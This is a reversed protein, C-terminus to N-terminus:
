REPPPIRRVERIRGQFRPGCSSAGIRNEGVTVQKGSALHFEGQHRLVEQDDVRIALSSLTQRRDAGPFLREFDIRAVPYLSGLHVEVRYTQGPVIRIPASLVSPLGWHDWGFVVVEPELYRAFVVDGAGAMGTVVLPSGTGAEARQFELQLELSGCPPLAGGLLTRVQAALDEMAEYVRPNGKRLSNDYGTFSICINFLAGYGLLAAGGLGIWRSRWRSRLEFWVLLAAMLLVGAFYLEYRMTPGQVGSVVATLTLGLGALGAIAWFLEPSRKRLGGWLLPLLFLLNLFPISPLMGAVPELYYYREFNWHAKPELKWFPFDGSLQPPELFFYYLGIPIRAARFSQYKRMNQFGCLCYGYGFEAPSEFRLYNYLGLLGAVLALPGFLSALRLARQPGARLLRWGALAPFVAGFLLPARAGAALGLLLSGAALRRLRVQEGLGGSVFCYIAAWM